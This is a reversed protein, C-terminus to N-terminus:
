MHPMRKSKKKNKKEIIKLPRKQVLFSVCRRKRSLAEFRMTEGSPTNKVFCWWWWWLLSCFFFVIFFFFPGV